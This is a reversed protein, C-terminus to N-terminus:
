AGTRCVEVRQSRRRRTFVDGVLCHEVFRDSSGFALIQLNEISVELADAHVICVDKFSFVAAKLVHLVAIADLVLRAAFGCNVGLVLRDHREVIWRGPSVLYVSM